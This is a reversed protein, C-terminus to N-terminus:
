RFSKISVEGIGMMYDDRRWFVSDPFIPMIGHTVREYLARVMIMMIRRMVSFDIGEM